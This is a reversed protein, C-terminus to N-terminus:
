PFASFNRGQFKEARTRATCARAASRCPRVFADATQRLLGGVLRLHAPAPAPSMLCAEGDILEWRLGDTLYAGYNHRQRDRVLGM